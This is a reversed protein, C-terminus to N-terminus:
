KTAYLEWCLTTYGQERIEDDIMLATEVAKSGMMSDLAERHRESSRDSDDRMSGYQSKLREGLAHRALGDWFKTAEEAQHLRLKELKIQVVELDDRWHFDAICPILKRRSYRDVYTHFRHWGDEFLCEGNGQGNTAEVWEDGALIPPWLGPRMEPKCDGYGLYWEHYEQFTECPIDRTRTEWMADILKGLPLWVVTVSEMDDRWEPRGEAMYVDIAGEVEKPLEGVSFTETKKAKKVLDAVIGM